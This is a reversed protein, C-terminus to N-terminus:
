YGSADRYNKLERWAHVFHAGALFLHEIGDLNDEIIAKQHQLTLWGGAGDAAEELAEAICDARMFQDEGYDEAGKELRTESVTELHDDQFGAIRECEALFERCQRPNRLM